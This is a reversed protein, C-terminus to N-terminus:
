IHRYFLREEKLGEAALHIDMVRLLDDPRQLLLAVRLYLRFLCGVEDEIRSLASCFTKLRSFSVL